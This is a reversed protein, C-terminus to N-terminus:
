RSGAKSSRVFSSHQFWVNRVVKGAFKYQNSELLKQIAEGNGNEEVVIVGFTVSRFDLTQLVEMEAGEVDLSFFDLYTVGFKHLIASLPYCPIKTSSMRPLNNLESPDKVKPYWQKKFALPMFEWIGNVTSFPAKEIYHVSNNYGGSHCLSLVVHM